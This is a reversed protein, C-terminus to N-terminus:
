WDLMMVRTFIAYVRRKDISWHMRSSEIDEATQFTHKLLEAKLSKEVDETEDALRLLVHSINSPLPKLVERFLAAAISDNDAYLSTVKCLSSEAEISYMCYGKVTNDCDLAVLTAWQPSKDLVLSLEEFRDRGVLAHDYSFLEPRTSATLKSVSIDLPSPYSSLIDQFHKTSIRCACITARKFILGSKAYM